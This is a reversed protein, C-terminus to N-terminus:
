KPKKLEETKKRESGERLLTRRLVDLAAIAFIKKNMQRNTFPLHYRFSQLGSPSAIGICITGVPKETTGGDPGAIGSTALGYTAQSLRQIGKAMQKVTKEHVAGYQNLTDEEVGLIRVKSENSYTVASLLFYASSGPIQTLLHSILGGTCSEAIAITKENEFLLRAVEEHMSAGSNSFVWEGIRSLVWEKAREMTSKLNDLDHGRLQLKVEIIPFVARFGLYIDPFVHNIEKLKEGVVAEPLGFLSFICKQQQFQSAQVPLRPLVEQHMMHEMEQPVGPMCFFMCRDIQIAFGPATGQINKLCHAGNPLMAQQIDSETQKRNRKTFWATMSDMAEPHLMRQVGATQSIAEATLDDSTPGLGGTVIAIDSRTSIEKYLQIQDELVDGVCTIRSVRLGLNELVSSIYAANTDVIQGQRLEEGTSVIEIQM